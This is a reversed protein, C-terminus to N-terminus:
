ASSKVKAWMSVSAAFLKSRGMINPLIESTYQPNLIELQPNHIASQPNRIKLQPIRIKLQPNHIASQPNLIKLQPNHIASQPNLIKPKLVAQERTSLRREQSTKV